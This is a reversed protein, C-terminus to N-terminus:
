EVGPWEWVYRRATSGRRGRERRRVKILGLQRLCSGIRHEDARNVRDTPKGIAGVLCAATTFERPTEPDNIWKNIAEFWPDQEEFDASTEALQSAMEDSLWWQEGSKAAHYAEGWIQDRDARLCELRITGVEVPWFRRSGTPDRLFKTNTTGAFVTQRKVSATNRAYADRYRDTQASLFAKITSADARRASLADMEALEYIWVGRLSALADRYNTSLSFVTDSFWDDGALVRLASSKRCGQRGVLVLTTDVKCGPAIIRKVCSILFARALAYHLCAAADDNTGPEVADAGGTGFYYTLLHDIRRTRDWKLACRELYDRVPHFPTERAVLQIVEGVTRTGVRLRYVDDLWIRIAMEDVDRIEDGDIYVLGDFENHRIKGAYRPDRRLVERVNRPTGAPKPNEGGTMDLADIVYQYGAAANNSTIAPQTM